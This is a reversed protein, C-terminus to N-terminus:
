LMQRKVLDAFLGQAKLLESCTGEEAIHGSDMVIIRDCNMVTSLRHAVVIRTMHLEQLMSAVKAQTVNDLASTAEDMILIRRKPAIARAIAIRQKQGGSIGSNEASLMTDMGDPMKRIDDDICAIEAARWADEETLLPSSILINSRISGNFLRTDQLVTGIQRRVSRMNLAQLDEHDFFISGSQPRIFGLILKVLTSKGCGTKGVIAVYEGPAIHLSLDDLILPEKEAYRFSVHSLEVAGKLTYNNRLQGSVEPTQALTKAIQHLAPKFHSITEMSPLFSTLIATLTSYSVSFALFDSVRVDAGAAVAYLWILGLGNILISIGPLLYFVAPPCYASRVQEKYRKEWQVFARQEANDLRIKRISGFLSCLIGSTKSESVVVKEQVQQSIYMQLFLFLINLIFVICAPMVFACSFQLMQMFYGLGFLTMILCSMLTSVSAGTNYGISGIMNVFEGSSYKIFFSEPLNLVRMIFAKQVPQSISYEVRTKVNNQLVEFVSRVLLICLAFLFFPLLMYVQKEPIITSFLYQNVKPMVLGLLMFALATFFLGAVDRPSILKLAFHVFDSESVAGDPLMRYFVFAEQFDNACGATVSTMKGTRADRFRYGGFFAPYLVAPQGHDKRIALLIGSMKRYWKPFLPTRSYQMGLTPFTREIYEGLQENEQMEPLSARISLADCLESIVGAASTDNHRGTKGRISENLDDLAMNMSRSDNRNRDRIQNDWISRSNNDM